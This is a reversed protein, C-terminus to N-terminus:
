TYGGRWGDVGSSRPVGSCGTHPQRVARMLGDSQVCPGSPLLQSRCRTCTRCCCCCLETASAPSRVAARASAARLAAAAGRPPAPRPPAAAPCTFGRVQPEGGRQFGSVGARDGDRQLVHLARTGGCCGGPTGGADGDAQGACVAAAAGGVGAGGPIGAQHQTSQQHRLPRSRHLAGVAAAAAASGEM